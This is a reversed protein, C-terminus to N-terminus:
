KIKFFEMILERLEDAKEGFNYVAEKNKLTNNVFEVMVRSHIKIRQIPHKLEIGFEPDAKKLESEADIVLSEMVDALLYITNIMKSMKAIDINNEKCVEILPKREQVYKIKQAKQRMPLAMRQKQPIFNQKRM